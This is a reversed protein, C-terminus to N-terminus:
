LMTNGSDISIWIEWCTKNQEDMAEQVESKGEISFKAAASTNDKREM